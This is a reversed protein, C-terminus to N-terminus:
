REQEFTTNQIMLITINDYGGKQNALGILACCSEESVGQDEITSKMEFQNVFNSLGDTCLILTDMEQLDLSFIDAKISKETGLAKTIVNKQPHRRAEWESISGSRVLEAVLSHDETIQKIEGQSYLYARSDGIHAIYITNNICLALTTTTGMGSCEEVNLSKHYIETNARNIAEFIVGEISKPELDSEIYKILHDKIVEIALSSAIDGGKHGGMGDAVIYLKIENEYICYNDENIPRINGVDTCGFARM